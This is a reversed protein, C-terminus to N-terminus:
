NFINRIWITPYGIYSIKFDTLGIIQFDTVYGSDMVDNADGKTYYRNQGNIREIKVVRHVVKVDDKEFVIVQGEKIIQDDYETYIVADGKNIEGTMSDTAIVLLGYKFQCSILMIFLCMIVIGVANLAYSLKTMRQKLAYRRKREYLASVFWYVGLPVLLRAFSVLADSVAPEYPIVYAYLSTILRYSINPLAGYRKSIYNYLLNASLAPFLVMGVIDMFRNFSGINLFGMNIILESVSCCLYALISVATNEQALLVRRIVETSIIIVSIPLIFKFISKLSIPVASRWFGFHLGALYLISIYLLGFVSLILLIQNKNISLISRKKILVCGVVAAMLAIAAAVPLIYGATLFLSLLLVLLLLASFVYLAKRNIPMDTNNM